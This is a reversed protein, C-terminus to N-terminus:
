ERVLGLFLFKRFRKEVLATPAPARESIPPLLPSATVPECPCSCAQRAFGLNSNLLNMRTRPRSLPVSSCSCHCCCQRFVDFRPNHSRRNVQLADRCSLPPIPHARLVRVPWTFRYFYIVSAGTRQLRFVLVPFSPQQRVLALSLRSTKICSSVRLRFASWSWRRLVM